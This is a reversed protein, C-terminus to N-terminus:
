TPTRALSPCRGRWAEEHDVSCRGGIVSSPCRPRPHNPTPLDIESRTPSTCLRLRPSEPAVSSCRPSVMGLSPSHFIPIPPHSAAPLEVELPGEVLDPSPSGLSAGDSHSVLEFPIDTPAIPSPTRSAPRPAEEEEWRDEEANKSLYSHHFSPHNFSSSPGSSWGRLRPRKFWSSNRSM